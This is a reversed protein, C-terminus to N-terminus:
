RTTSPPAGQGRFMPNLQINQATMSGDSNDTGFVGVREGPKLDEKTANVSKNYTTTSSLIIIKSSGDMMKVTVSSADQTVVEGIVPRGGTFRARGEGNQGRSGQQFQNGGFRLQSRQYESYKMGGFFGAVGVIIAIITVTIPKM